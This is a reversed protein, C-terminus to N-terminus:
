HTPPELGGPSVFLAAIKQLEKKIKFCNLTNMNLPETTGFFDFVQKQRKELM